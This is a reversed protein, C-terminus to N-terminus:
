FRTIETLTMGTVVLDKIHVDIPLLDGNGARYYMAHEQEGMINDLKENSALPAQRLGYIVRQWCLM